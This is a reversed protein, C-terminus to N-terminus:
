LGSSGTICWEIKLGRVVLCFYPILVLLLSNQNHSANPILAEQKTEHVYGGDGSIEERRKRAIRYREPLNIWASQWGNLVCKGCSSGEHGERQRSHEEERRMIWNWTLFDWNRWQGKGVHSRSQNRWGARRGYGDHRKDRQRSKNILHNSVCQSHIMVM